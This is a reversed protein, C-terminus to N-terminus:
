GKLRIIGLNLDENFQSITVTKLMRQLQNRVAKFENHVPCPNIESCEALGLGCGIFISTGDVAEVVDALPRILSNQDLYFGGNPGKASQIIGRKSLDQLIKALFPEPSDINIAIEKIGVRGGDATRQAIFFVARMAYECTKSFIGM